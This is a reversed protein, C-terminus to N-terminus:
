KQKTRLGGGLRRAFPSGVRRLWPQAGPIRAYLRDLAALEDADVEYDGTEIDIAVFDRPNRHVVAAKITSEFIEEGRRSFEEKSYRPGIKPM